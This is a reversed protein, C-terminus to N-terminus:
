YKFIFFPNLLTLPADNVKTINAKKYANITAESIKLLYISVIWLSSIFLICKM